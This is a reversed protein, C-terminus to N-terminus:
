LKCTDLHAVFNGWVPGDLFAKPLHGQPADPTYKLQNNYLYRGRYRWGLDDAFDGFHENTPEFKNGFLSKWKQAQVSFGFRGQSKTQWVQNIARLSECPLRSITKENLSGSAQSLRLLLSKTEEDAEKWNGQSLLEELKATTSSFNVTNGGTAITPPIKPPIVNGMPAPPKQGTLAFFTNIPIAANFGTKQETSTGTEKQGIKPKIPLIVKPKRRSITEEKTSDKGDLSGADAQGHIGIVRGYVDFVPGGSNGIFTNADYVLTYGEDARPNFTVVKGNTVTYTRNKGL